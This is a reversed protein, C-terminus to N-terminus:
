ALLFTLNSAGYAPVLHAAFEGPGLIGPSTM